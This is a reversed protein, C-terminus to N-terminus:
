LNLYETFKQDINLNLKKKKFWNLNHFISGDASTDGAILIDPKLANYNIVLKHKQKQLM